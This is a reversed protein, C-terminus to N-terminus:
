KKSRGAIRRVFADDLEGIGCCEGGSKVGKREQIPADVQRKMLLFESVMEAKPLM